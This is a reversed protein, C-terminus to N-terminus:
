PHGLAVYSKCTGGNVCFLLPQGPGPRTVTCVDNIPHECSDGAFLGTESHDSDASSCDCSHDDEDKVCKSGHFCMHEGGSCVDVEEECSLGTFKNSCVCHMYNIHNEGGLHPAHVSLDGSLGLDKVGNRCVGENKCNLDCKQVYAPDVFLPSEPKDNGDGDGNTNSDTHNGFESTVFECSHGGFPKPCKCGMHSEEQCTGENTCFLLGNLGPTKTCYATAKFQCFRGAYDAEKTSALMCDCHHVVYNDVEREVCQGGHFCYYNDGCPERELDCNDGHYGDPCSCHMHDVVAPDYNLYSGETQQETPMEGLVCKGNGCELDCELDPISGRQYECHDGFYAPDCVCPEGSSSDFSVHV